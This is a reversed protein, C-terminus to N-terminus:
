LRGIEANQIQDLAFDFAELSLPVSCGTATHSLSDVQNVFRLEGLVVNQNFVQWGVSRSISTLPCRLLTGEESRCFFVGAILKGTAWDEKLGIEAQDRESSSAFRLYSKKM